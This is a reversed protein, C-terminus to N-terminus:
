AGQPPVGFSEARAKLQEHVTWMVDPDFTGKKRMWRLYSTPVLHIPVDAHEGFTFYPLSAPLKQLEIMDAMTMHKLQRRLVHAGIFSDPGAAHKPVGSERSPLYSDDVEPDDDLKLIYRIGQLNHCSWRPRLKIMNKWTCIWQPPPPTGIVEKSHREFFNELFKREFHACHAVVISVKPDFMGANDMAEYLFPKGAVMKDTIDTIGSINPPIPRGPNVFQARPTGVKWAGDILTVDTWGLEIVEHGADPELGTTEVDLSRAIM